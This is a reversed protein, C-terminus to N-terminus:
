GALSVRETDTILLGFAPLFCHLVLVLKYASLSLGHLDTKSARIDLKVVRMPDLQVSQDARQIEHRSSLSVFSIARMQPALGRTLILLIIQFCHSMASLSDTLGRKFSFAKEVKRSWFGRNSSRSFFLAEGARLRAFAAVVM